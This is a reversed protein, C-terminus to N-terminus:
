ARWKLCGREEVAWLNRRHIMRIIRHTANIVIKACVIAGIFALGDM